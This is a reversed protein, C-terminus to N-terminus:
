EKDDISFLIQNIKVSSGRSVYVNKIRGPLKSSAMIEDGTITGSSYIFGTQVPKQRSLFLVFAAFVSLVIVLLSIKSKRM